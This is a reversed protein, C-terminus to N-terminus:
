NTCTRGQVEVGFRFTANRDMMVKFGGAFDDHCACRQQLNVLTSVCHDSLSRRTEENVQGLIELYMLSCTEVGDAQKGYYRMGVVVEGPKNLDKIIDYQDNFIACAHAWTRDRRDLTTGYRGAQGCRVCQHALLPNPRNMNLISAPFRLSSDRPFYQFLTINVDNSLQPGRNFKRVLGDRQADTYSTAAITESGVLTFYEIPRGHKPGNPYRYLGSQRKEFSNESLAALCVGSLWFAIIFFLM